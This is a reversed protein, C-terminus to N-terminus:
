IDSRASGGQRSGRDPHEERPRAITVALAHGQFDKKHLMEVAKNAEEVSSYQVFAFGRSKGTYKDQM